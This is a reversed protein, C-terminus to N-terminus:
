RRFENRVRPGGTLAGAASALFSPWAGRPPASPTVRSVAAGRALMQSHIWIVRLRGSVSGAGGAILQPALEFAQASAIEKEHLASLTGLRQDDLRAFFHAFELPTDRNLRDFLGDLLRARRRGGGNGRHTCRRSSPDDRGAFGDAERLGGECFFGANAHFCQVAQFLPLVRRVRLGHGLDILDEFFGQRPSSM